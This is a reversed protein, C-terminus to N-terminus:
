EASIRCSALWVVDFDTPSWKMPHVLSDKGVTSASNGGFLPPMDAVTALFCGWSPDLYPNQHPGRNNM